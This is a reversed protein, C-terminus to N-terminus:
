MRFKAYASDLHRFMAGVAGNLRLLLNTLVVTSYGTTWLAISQLYDADAGGRRRLSYKTHGESVTTPNDWYMRFGQTAPHVVDSLWEYVKLVSHDLGDKSESLKQMHTMINTADISNGRYPSAEWIPKKKGDVGRGVRTGWIARVLCEELWLLKEDPIIVPKSQASVREFIALISATNTHATAAHELLGRSLMAPAVLDKANVSRVFSHIISEAKFAILISYANAQITMDRWLLERQMPDSLTRASREFAAPTIVEWTATQDFGSTVQFFRRLHANIDAVYGYPDKLWRLEETYTELRKKTKVISALRESAIQLSVVNQQAGV